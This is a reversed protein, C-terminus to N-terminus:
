RAAEVTEDTKAGIEVWGGVPLNRKICLEELKKCCAIKDPGDLYIEISMDPHIFGLTM